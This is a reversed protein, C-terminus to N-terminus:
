GNRAGTSLIAAFMAPVSAPGSTPANAPVSAPANAPAGDVAADDPRPMDAIMQVGNRSVSLLLRKEGFDVVALRGATGLTVADVVAVPRSGSRASILGPQVRRMLWLAGVAMGAVLPVLLVLKFIYVLM